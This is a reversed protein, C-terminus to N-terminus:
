VKVKSKKPKQGRGFSFFHYWSGDQQSRRTPRGVANRPRPMGSCRQINTGFFDKSFVFAQFVWGGSFLFVVVILLVNKKYIIKQKKFPFKKQNPPHPVINQQTKRKEPTHVWLSPIVHHVKSHKTRFNDGM